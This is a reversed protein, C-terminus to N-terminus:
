VERKYVIGTNAALMCNLNGGAITVPKPMISYGRETSIMIQNITCNEPMGAIWAPINIELEKDSCNMAVIIQEQHNFRCFSIYGNGCNLFRFSGTKIADSCKHLRIMDRHFDILEYNPNDWPYTRRNDPDTFGCLGAEDGYYLTPAGPWTMQFMVALKMIPISVNANAAEPGLKDIRGAVHNTRSLFRSHDHNSLQNMSCYLSPTKLRAMFHLMTNKFRNGDGVANAQYEDSHKEMGTLFFSLPEMFADYNMVTDWQDGQLWSSPDGYHEALVVANPNAEKVADRFDRWFQHNMEPSHGLDAAVDLRWGDCNYPASVWKKGIRLIYDYLEKSDEFNLKPLTDYGWWGEYTNNDPWKNDNDDSFKFFSNYPSDKSEYAGAPYGEEKTYLKERNLWKNFSGCHNFVGDLIVKIGKEHCEAVFDAFFQNSAELNEQNTVRTKYRSAHKNDNDGPALLDGEDHVFKTFHPDIHDYDAIDYKHSSPSVFLPNFYIVEIGVSKLYNLKQRVGELDGGYFEAVDFNAVRRNWDDVHESHTQIYFYEDTLVDNSPDGNCFRDVLIQYMVAGKSWSPTSFGPTISFEYYQRFDRSLGFRDYYYHVDDCDLEFHYNFIESGLLVKCKYYDFQEVTTDYVMEQRGDKSVVFAQMDEGRYTRLRITVSENANPEMPNRYESTGDSYIAEINM